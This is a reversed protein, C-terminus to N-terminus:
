RGTGGLEKPPYREFMAKHSKIKTKVMDTKYVKEADEYTIIWGEAQLAAESDWQHKKKLHRNLEFKDDELFAKGKSQCLKCHYLTGVAIFSSGKRWPTNPDAENETHGTVPLKKNSRRAVPLKKSTSSSSGDSESPSTDTPSSVSAQEQSRVSMQQMNHQIQFSNDDGAAHAEWDETLRYPDPVLGQPWYLPQQDSSPIQSHINAAPYPSVYLLTPFPAMHVTPQHHDRHNNFDQPDSSFYDFQCLPCMFVQVPGQANNFSAAM